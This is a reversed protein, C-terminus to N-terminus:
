QRCFGLSVRAPLWASVVTFERMDPYFLYPLSLKGAFNANTNAVRICTASTTLWRMDAVARTAASTVNTSNALRIFTASTPLWCGEALSHKLAYMVRTNALRIFM